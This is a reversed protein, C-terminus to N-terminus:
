EENFLNFPDMGTGEPAVVPVPHYVRGVAKGGLQGVSNDGWTWVTGDSRLAATYGNGATVQIVDTLGEVPAPDNRVANSKDVGLQGAYNSGWTWVLGDDRLAAAHNDGAAIQRVHTLDPVPTPMAYQTNGRQGWQWVAGDQSLALTQNPGAAVSKIAELSPVRYPSLRQMNSGDGIQGVFNGGWTWVTRQDDVAATHIDGAAIAVSGPLEPVRGPVPRNITSGDGLQGMFNAGWTWITGDQRLAVSHGAGAAIATVETLATVAVPDASLTGSNGDGLEGTFNAGWARLTGDRRLALTHNAGASVAVVDDLGEV